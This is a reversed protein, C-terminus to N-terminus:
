DSVEAFGRSGLYALLFSTASGVAVTLGLFKLVPISSVALMGFALTTSAACAFVAQQTLKREGSTEKRSLFLAYDLGLGLVLLLAVLHIVTLSAHTVLICSVTFALSAVVTLAIWVVERGRKRVAWCLMIIIITAIAVTNTIGTRYNRMLQTSFKQLDVLEVGEWSEIFDAFEAARPDNLSTLAIWHGPRQILHSEVWAQLIGGEYSAPELAPLRKAIASNKLFSDFANAHFSTPAVAVALDAALLAPDPIAAQRESLRRQSPLLHSISQWGSLLDQEVADSLLEEVAESKLLLAELSTEHLMLQYRLDPSDAASRLQIDKKLRHEPVPSLSSLEDNWVEMRAASNVIVLSAIVLVVLAGIYRFRPLQDMLATSAPPQVFYPLLDPLWWRTALAAVILGITTFVGIRALGESGSFLLALYAIATSTVSLLMTPWIRHIVGRGASKAHSFLHLPYDVAIGLLTFGFALTIGHVQQFLLSVIALGVLGGMGIPLAAIVLLRSSKYIILLVLILAATALVSRKVAETSITKQLEVSFAGVGTLQLKATSGEAILAFSDEIVGLAKAQASLDVAVAKTEAMIVASGDKAFWMDGSRKVPALGELVDLTALYPDRAILDVLEAGGGFALDRFRLRVAQTLGTQSFDIDQLLLYYQDVPAPVTAVNELPEGNVVASFEPKTALEHRLQDSLDVLKEHSVGNIGIVVLRSGPGNSWQELLAQHTLDAQRPFFASLDFSLQLRFSLVLAAIFALLLWPASVKLSSRNSSTM